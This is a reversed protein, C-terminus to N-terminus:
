GSEFNSVVKVAYYVEDCSLSHQETAKIQITVSESEKELSL